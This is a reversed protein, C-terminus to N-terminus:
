PKVQKHHENEEIEVVVETTEIEVESPTEASVSHEEQSSKLVLVAADNTVGDQFSSIVQIFNKLYTLSILLTQLPFM